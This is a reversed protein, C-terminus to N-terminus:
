KEEKLHYRGKMSGPTRAVAKCFGGKEDNKMVYLQSGRCSDPRM